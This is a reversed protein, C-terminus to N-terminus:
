YYAQGKSEMEDEKDSRGRMFLVILGLIILIAVLAIVGVQLITRLSSSKQELVNATAIISQKAGDSAVEIGFTKKGPAADAKASVYVYVIKSDGAAVIPMRDSVTYVAWDDANVVQVTYAKSTTGANQIVIPFTAGGSGATVDQTTPATILTKDVVQQNGTVACAGESIITIPKTVTALEDEDYLVRVVVDYTGAKACAPIRLFIEESSRKEGRGLEREGDLEDLYVTGEIGLSPISATVRINDQDREGINELRAQVLLSRGAAVNDNPSFIVDRVLVASRPGAVRITFSQTEFTDRRGEVTVRLEYEDKDARIPLKISMDIFETDGANLDFVRSTDSVSERDSYEYGVLRANVQIDSVDTIAQLKMRIDLNEGLDVKLTDGSVYEDGNVKVYELEVADSYSLENAAFASVLTALAFLTLVLLKKM